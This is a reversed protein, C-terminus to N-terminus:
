FEGTCTWHTRIQRHTCACSAPKPRNKLKIALCIGQLGALTTWSEALCHALHLLKWRANNYFFRADFNNEKTPLSNHVSMEKAGALAKTPRKAWLSGLFWKLTDGALLSVTHRMKDLLIDPLTGWSRFSSASKTLGDLSLHHNRVWLGWSHVTWEAPCSPPHIVSLLLAIFSVMAVVIALIPATVKVMM